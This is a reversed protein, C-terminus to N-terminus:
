AAPPNPTGEPRPLGLREVVAAGVADGWVNVATRCRDLVWDISLILGIGEIPLGVAKLVLVMTVTGAEPIGAAGISALTATVFVIFTQVAGLEIGWAQAIFVAAVAEYLATGDMNVTAGLPLTFNAARPDVGNRDEVCELTLPLTASSSATSFATLLATGMGRAYRLPSRRTVLWLLAPLTVLAHFALGGVVTIAYATLGALIRVFGEAGGAQGLRGAVLGFVGFPATWMVVRVLKMIAADIGRFFALVPEGTPGLTTLVAGFALSFVILPLIQMKAAAAVLNPAVLSRLMDAPGLAAKARIREPVEVGAGLRLGEGPAVLHVLALGVAIAAATTLAYYVLTVAGTRGLKRVDGLSAVGTVISAVVLPVVMMKLLTLFLEGLLATHRAAAPAFWGLLGGAVAGLAIWAFLGGGRAPAAQVHPVREDGVAIGGLCSWRGAAVVGGPLTVFRAPPAVVEHM